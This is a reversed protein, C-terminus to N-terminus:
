NGQTQIYRSINIKNEKAWESVYKMESRQILQNCAGRIQVVTRNGRKYEITAITQTLEDDTYIRLSFISVEGNACKRAYSGVCHHMDKGEDKLGERTTIEVIRREKDSDGKEFIKKSYPKVTSPNWFPPINDRRVTRRTNLERHWGEVLALLNDPNRGKFSFDPQLPPLRHYEGQLYQTRDRFKIDVVYDYIERYKDNSLFPNNAFFFFMTIWFEERVGVPIGLSMIGNIVREEFGLGKLQAWRFSEDLTFSHPASNLCHAQKKSLPIPLDKQKRINQGWGVNLYWKKQIKFLKKNTAKNDWIKNLCYPVEYLLTLFQALKYVNDKAPVKPEPVFDEPEKIWTDKCSALNVLITLIQVNKLPVGQLNDFGDVGGGEYREEHYQLLRFRKAVTILRNLARCESETLYKDLIAERVYRVEPHDDMTPYFGFCVARLKEYFVNVPKRKPKNYLRVKREHKRIQAIEQKHRKIKKNSNKAM